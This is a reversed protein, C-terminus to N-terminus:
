DKFQPAHKRAFTIIQHYTEPAFDKKAPSYLQATEEDILKIREGGRVYLTVYLFPNELCNEFLFGKPFDATILLRDEVQNLSLQSNFELNKVEKLYLM